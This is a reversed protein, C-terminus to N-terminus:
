WRQNLNVKDGGADEGDAEPLGGGGTRGASRGRSLRCGWRRVVMTPQHHTPAGVAADRRGGRQWRKSGPSVIAGGGGRGNHRAAQGKAVAAV